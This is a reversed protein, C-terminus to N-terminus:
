VWLKRLVEDLLLEELDGLFELWNGQDNHNKHRELDDHHLKERQGLCTRLEELIESQRALKENAEELQLRVRERQAESRAIM